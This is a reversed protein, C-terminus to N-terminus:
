KFGVTVALILTFISAKVSTASVIGSALASVASALYCREASAGDTLAETPSNESKPGTHYQRVPGKKGGCTTLPFGPSIATQREATLYFLTM